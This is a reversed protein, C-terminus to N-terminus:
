SSHERLTIRLESFGGDKQSGDSTSCKLWAESLLLGYRQTM